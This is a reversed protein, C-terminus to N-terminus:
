LGFKKYVAHPRGCLRCRKQLRTYHSNRPLKQLKSQIEWPIEGKKYAAKCEALLAERKARFKKELRQRKKNREIVSTKPM